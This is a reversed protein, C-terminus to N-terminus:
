VPRSAVEGDARGPAPVESATGIWCSPSGGGNAAPATRARFWLYGGERSRLPFSDEWPESAAFARALGRVVRGLHHPHH